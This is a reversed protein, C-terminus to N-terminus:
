FSMGNEDAYEIVNSNGLVDGLRIGSDLSLVLYTEMLVLPLGVLILVFWLLPAGACLVSISFPINRVFSTSFSCSLGTTDEVVQLGMIKKGISQGAGWGDAMSSFVFAFIPGLPTWFFRAIFFVAMVVLLDIARSAFRNFVSTQRQGLFISTRRGSNKTDIL